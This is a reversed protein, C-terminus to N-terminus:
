PTATTKEPVAAGCEPCRELTARLDYGCLVCHGERLRRDSRFWRIFAILPAICAIIVPLALPIVLGRVDSGAFDTKREYEIGAWSQHNMDSGLFEWLRPYHRAPSTPSGYPFHVAWDQGAARPYQPHYEVVLVLAGWGSRAEFTFAGWWWRGADQYYASRVWLAAAALCLLLSIVSVLCFIKRKM